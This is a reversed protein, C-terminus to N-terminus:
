AKAPTVTIKFREKVDPWKAIDGHVELEWIIKNNKAEFSHMTDQPVILGVQGSAIESSQTSSVLELEYFTKKDTHTKTGRRYTAEERGRLTIKLQSIVGTRGSFRWGLEAASGIPIRAPSLELRVRPNFLALFQHFVFVIAGLGVLVFPIMFLTLFWDPHGQRFAQVVQYVFISVIGNWFAAFAIIGLLKVLPSYRAKLVVPGLGATDRVPIDGASTAGGEPTWEKTTSKLKGKKRRITHVLGGVGVALFPLPILGVLLGLHLGRKLVAESPSKPNVYCVPNKAKKYSNVVEAKGSRGSSSGGVFSYRNSKYTRGEFTYEYLIDVSYTTSDDGRHSQVRASLVKCPTQTWNRADLTKAIPRITLWYMAGAGVLAFISFFVMLGGKGKKRRARAAIPETKGKKERGFWIAYLGIAGILVFILPFLVAFGLVLSGRKLVAKSPDNPNVYCLTEKQAPYREVLGGAKHYKDTGNYGRKYVTSTHKTSNFEYEYQVTFVYPDESSPKEEVGSAVITCPVKKRFRQGVSKGFDRLILVEFIMGMGFFFLFFLSGAL